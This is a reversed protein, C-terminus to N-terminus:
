LIGSAALSKFREFAASAFTVLPDFTPVDSAHGGGVRSRGSHSSAVSFSSTLLNILSDSSTSRSTTNPPV